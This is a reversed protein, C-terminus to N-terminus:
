GVITTQLRNPPQLRRLRLGAAATRSSQRQYQELEMRIAGAGHKAAHRHTRRRHPGPVIEPGAPGCRGNSASVLKQGRNRLDEPQRHELRGLQQGLMLPLATVHCQELGRRDALPAPALGLIRGPRGWSSPGILM